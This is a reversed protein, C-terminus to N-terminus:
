FFYIKGDSAMSEQPMLGLVLAAVMVQPIVTLNPLIAINCPQSNITFISRVPLPQSCVSFMNEVLKQSVCTFRSMLNIIEKRM